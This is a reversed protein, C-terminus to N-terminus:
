ERVQSEEVQKLELCQSVHAAKLTTENLKLEKEQTTSTSYSPHDIGSLLNVEAKKNALALAVQTDKLHNQSVEFEKQLQYVKINAKELIANKQSEEHFQQQLVRTEQESAKLQKTLRDNATALYTSEVEVKKLRDAINSSAIVQNELSKKAKLELELQENLRQYASRMESVGSDDRYQSNIM